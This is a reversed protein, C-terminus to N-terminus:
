LSQRPTVWGPLEIGRAVGYEDHSLYLLKVGRPAVVYCDWLFLAAITVYSIADEIEDRVFVHGPSDIMRRTEGYSLRFREFVHMRQGSPWVSWDDFWVLYTAEDTFARMALAVLAVRQQADIPIKFRVDAISREPLGYDSLNISNAECWAAAEQKSMVKM